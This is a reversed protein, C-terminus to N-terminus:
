SLLKRVFVRKVYTNGQPEKAYTEITITSGDLSMMWKRNVQVTLKEQARTFTTSETVDISMGDKAWKATRKGKWELGDIQRTFDLTKGNLVYVDKVSHAMDKESYAQTNVTLQEGSQTVILLQEADPNIGQSLEKDLIWRGSFDAKPTKGAAVVACVLTVICTLGVIKKM